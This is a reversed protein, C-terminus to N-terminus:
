FLIDRSVDTVEYCRGFESNEISDDDDSEGTAKKEKFVRFIVLDNDGLSNMELLDKKSIGTMLEDFKQFSKSTALARREFTKFNKESSSVKETSSQPYYVEVSIRREKATLIPITGRLTPIMTGARAIVKTPSIKVDWYRLSDL